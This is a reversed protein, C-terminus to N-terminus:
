IDDIARVNLLKASPPGEASKPLLAPALGQEFKAEAYSIVGFRMLISDSAKPRLWIIGRRYVTSPSFRDGGSLQDPTGGVVRANASITSSGSVRPERDNTWQSAYLMRGSSLSNGSPM